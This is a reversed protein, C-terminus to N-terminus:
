WTSWARVAIVAIGVFRVAVQAAALVVVPMWATVGLRGDATSSRM